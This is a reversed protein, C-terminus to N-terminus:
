SNTDAISYALSIYDTQNNANMTLFRYIRVVYVGDVTATYRLMEVNSNTLQSTAPAMGTFDPDSPDFLYLNYDTLYLEGENSSSSPVTSVLWSLGVQIEQGQELYIYQTWVIPNTHTNYTITNICDECSIMRELDIVGAGVKLDSHRNTGLSITYDATKQATASLISQVAEPSGEIQENRELLLAICGAVIPASYSTGSSVGIGPITVFYPAAVDPMRGATNSKYCSRSAAVWGDDSIEVGAVTIANYAHAPSAMYNDPNYSLLDMNTTKSRNGAAVVAIISNEEIQQDYVADIDYRYQRPGVVYAGNKLNNDYYAFSCNVIDCGQEIFWQLGQSRNCRAVYLEADPAILSIISTVKTAHHHITNVDSEKITINKNQLNIHNVDCVGNAEYVGIKLGAGTYTQNELIDSANVCNKVEDWSPYIDETAVAQINQTLSIHLINENEALETLVQEDLAAAPVTLTVFSSYDIANVHTYPIKSLLPMNEEIVQAHYRKSYANQRTKAMDREVATKAQERAAKLSLYTKDSLYDAAFQVTIYVNEDAPESSGRSMQLAKAYDSKVLATASRLEAVDDMFTNEPTDFYFHIKSTFITVQLRNKPYPFAPTKV